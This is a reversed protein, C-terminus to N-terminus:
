GAVSDAADQDEVNAASRAACDAILARLAAPSSPKLLRNACMREAARDTEEGAEATLLIAPPRANWFECLKLYVADGREDGDLRYDM